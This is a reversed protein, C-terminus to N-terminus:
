RDPRSKFEPGGFQLDLERVVRNRQRKDNINQFVM